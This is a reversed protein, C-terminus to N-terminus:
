IGYKKRISNMSRELIIELSKKSITDVFIKGEESISFYDNIIKDMDDKDSPGEM